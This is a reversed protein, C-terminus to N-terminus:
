TREETLWEMIKNTQNKGICDILERYSFWRGKANDLDRRYDDIDTINGFALARERKTARWPGNDIFSYDLLVAGNSSTIFRTTSFGHKYMERLVNDALEKTSRAEIKLFDYYKEGASYHKGNMVLCQEQESITNEVLYVKEDSVPILEYEFVEEFSKFEQKSNTNSM